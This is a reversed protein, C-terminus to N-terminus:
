QSVAVAQRGMQEWAAVFGSREASSVIGFPDNFYIQREDYGTIVVAHMAYTVKMEGDPTHWTHFSTGPLANYRTNVVVWVPTDHAVFRLIDSFEAGTLDMAARPFYEALLAHIPKHYVGYGHQNLNFMDGVFGRNPNGAYIRGNRREYPTSDKAVQNALTMKDVDIGYFQMLMALSTVECGRPLKPRQLILPVDDIQHARPIKENKSWILNNNKRFYIYSRDVAKAAQVAELFTDFAMYDKHDIFVAYPPYNDWLWTTQRNRSIAANTQAEAYARASEFDPFQRVKINDVYVDYTAPPDDDSPPLAAKPTAPSSMYVFRDDTVIKLLAVVEIIVVIAASVCLFTLIALITKM